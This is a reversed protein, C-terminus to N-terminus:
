PGAVAMTVTNSQKGSIFLVVSVTNSVRANAPVRVNVQNIGVCCESLGSFQVEAVISDITVTPRTVTTVTGSPLAGTPVAPTVQGLGNAYISVVEGRQAPSSASVPTGDAHTIAGPGRGDGSFSFIGPSFADSSITRIAAPQGAVTVQVTAATGTLDTPIQIGIQTPTAYFIPVPVLSNNITVQAGAM